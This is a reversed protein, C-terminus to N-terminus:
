MDAHQREFTVVFERLADQLQAEDAEILPALAEAFRALNWLAIRPQNGYCYRRGVADTTNPTWALDVGELWGYPGYDITLGLVSMNVANMVAHGFGVRMWHALMVATRRCVEQLWRLYTDSGPTGFEPSHTALVHDALLRLTRVDDRA